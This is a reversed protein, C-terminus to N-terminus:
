ERRVCPLPGHGFMRSTCLNCLAIPLTLHKRAFSEESRTIRPATLCAANAPSRSVYDHRPFDPLQSAKRALMHMREIYQENTARAFGSTSLLTAIPRVKPRMSSLIANQFCTEKGNADLM